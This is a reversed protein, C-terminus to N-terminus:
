RMEIEKLEKERLRDKEAHKEDDILDFDKDIEENKEAETVVQLPM